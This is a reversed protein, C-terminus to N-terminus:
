RSVFPCSREEMSLAQVLEALLRREGGEVRLTGDLLSTLVRRAGLTWPLPKGRFMPVQSLAVLAKMAGGVRVAPHEKMWPYVRVRSGQFSLTCVHDPGTSERAVFAADFSLTGVFLRRDEWGRVNHELTEALFAALPNGAAGEEVVIEVGAVPIGVAL